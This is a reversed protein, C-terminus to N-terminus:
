LMMQMACFVGHQEMLHVLSLVGSPIIIAYLKLSIGVQEEEAHEDCLQIMVNLFHRFFRRKKRYKSLVRRTMEEREWEAMCKRIKDGVEISVEERDVEVKRGSGLSGTILVVDFVIFPVKRGAIKFAKRKRDWSDILALTLHREMDMGGYELVPRLAAGMVVDRQYPTMRKHLGIVGYLM